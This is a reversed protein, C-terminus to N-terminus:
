ITITVTYENKPALGLPVGNVVIYWSWSDDRQLTGRISTTGLDVEIEEGSRMSYWADRAEVVWRWLDPDYGMPAKRIKM